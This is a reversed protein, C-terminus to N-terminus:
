GLEESKDLPPCASQVFLCTTFFVRGFVGCLGVLCEVLGPLPVGVGLLFVEGWLRPTLGNWGLKRRLGGM